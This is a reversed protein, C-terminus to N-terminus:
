LWFEGIARSVLLLIFLIAGWVITKVTVNKGNESILNVSSVIGGFAFVIIIGVFFMKDNNDLKGNEIFLQSYVFIVVFALIILITTTRSLKKWVKLM